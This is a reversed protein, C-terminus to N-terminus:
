NRYIPKPNIEAILCRLHIELLLPLSQDTLVARISPQKYAIFVDNNGAM